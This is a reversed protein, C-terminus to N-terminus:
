ARITRARSVLHVSEHVDNRSRLETPINGMTSEPKESVVRGLVRQLLYLLKGFIYCLFLVYCVVSLVEIRPFRSIFLENKM